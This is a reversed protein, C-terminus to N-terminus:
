TLFIYILNKVSPNRQAKWMNNISTTFSSFLDETQLAQANFKRESNM